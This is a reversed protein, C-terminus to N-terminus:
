SELGSHHFIDWGWTSKMSCQEEMLFLSVREGRSGPQVKIAEVLLIYFASNVRFRSWLIGAVKKRGPPALYSRPFGCPVGMCRWSFIHCGLLEPFLNPSGLQSSAEHQWALSHVMKSVSIKMATWDGPYSDGGGGGMGYSLVAAACLVVWVMVWSAFTFLM